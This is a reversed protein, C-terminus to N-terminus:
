RAAAQVGAIRRGKGPEIGTEGRVQAGHERPQADGRRIAVLEHLADPDDQEHAVLVAVASDRAVGSAAVEAHDAEHVSAVTTEVM